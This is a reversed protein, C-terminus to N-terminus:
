DNPQFQVVAMDSADTDTKGGHATVDVVLLAGPPVSVPLVAVEHYECGPEIYYSEPYNDYHTLLNIEDAIPQSKEINKLLDGATREVQYVKLTVGQYTPRFKVRGVNKLSVDVVLLTSGNYSLITPKAFVQLNWAWKRMLIFWVGGMAIAVAAILEQLGCIAEKRHDLWPVWTVLAIAILCFAILSFIIYSPRFQM